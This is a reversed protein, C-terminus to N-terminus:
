NLARILVNKFADMAAPMAASVRADVMALSFDGFNINVDLKNRSQGAINAEMGGRPGRPSIMDGWRRTLGGESILDKILEEPAGIIKGIIGEWKDKTNDALMDMASSLYGIQKESGAKQQQALTTYVIFMQRKYADVANESIWGQEAMKEVLGLQASGKGTLRDYAAQQANLAKTQADLEATSEGRIEALESEAGLIELDWRYLEGASAGQAELLDRSSQQVKVYDELAITQAKLEETQIKLEIGLLAADRAMEARERAEKTVQQGILVEWRAVDLLYDARLATARATAQAAKLGADANEGVDTLALAVDLTADKIGSWYKWAEQLHETREEEDTAAAAADMETEMLGPGSVYAEYQGGIAGYTKQEVLLKALKLEEKKLKLIREALDLEDRLKQNKKAQEQYMKPAINYLTTMDAEQAALIAQQRKLEVTEERLVADVDDEKKLRKDVRDEIDKASEIGEAQEGIQRKLIKAVEFATRGSAKMTKYITKQEESLKGSAIQADVWADANIEAHIGLGRATGMMQELNVGLSQIAIAADNGALNIKKLSEIDM